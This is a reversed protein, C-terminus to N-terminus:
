TGGCFPIRKQIPSLPFQELAKRSAVGGTLFLWCYVRVAEPVALVPWDFGATM